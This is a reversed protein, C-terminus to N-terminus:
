YILNTGDSLVDKFPQIFSILAWITFLREKKADSVPKM